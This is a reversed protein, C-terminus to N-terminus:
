DPGAVGVEAPSGLLNDIEEWLASSLIDLDHDGRDREHAGGGVPDALRRLGDGVEVADGLHVGTGAVHVEDGHDPHGLV